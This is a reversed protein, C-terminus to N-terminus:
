SYIKEHARRRIDTSSIKSRFQDDSPIRGDEGADLVDVEFIDLASWGRERRKDNVLKGGGRTEASVVLASIAEDTITPGCPDFIEVYRILLGSKLSNQIERGFPETKALTQIDELVHRPSILELIGLLFGQVVNQRKYFDELQDRYQKNRLLEDGTIGITLHARTSARSDLLLAASTLLLKHGAHLHDFTGGVAVSSYQQVVNDPASSTQPSDQHLALGGPLREIQPQHLGSQPIQSRFRLFEQLLGEANEGEPSCVRRWARNTKALTELDIFSKEKSPSEDQHEIQAPTRRVLMVRADVDNEYQVDIKQQTCIVCILRYMTGFLHQLNSYNYNSSNYFIVVDLTLSLLSSSRESALKLAETLSPGYAVRLSSLSIESPPYPLLLLWIQRAQGNEVM